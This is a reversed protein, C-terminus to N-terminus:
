GTVPVVTEANPDITFAVYKNTGLKLKCIAKFTSDAMETVYAISACPYGKQRIAGRVMWWEKQYKASASHDMPPASYEVLLAGNGAPTSNDASGAIAEAAPSQAPAPPPTAVPASAVPVPAAAPASKLPLQFALICLAAPAALLLAIKWNFVGDRAMQM